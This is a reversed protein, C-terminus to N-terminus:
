TLFFEHEAVSVSHQTHDIPHNKLASVMKPKVLQNFKQIDEQSVPKIALKAFTESNIIPITGLFVLFRADNEPLSLFKPLLNALFYQFDLSMLHIISHTFGIRPGSFDAKSFFINMFLAVESLSNTPDLPLPGKYKVYEIPSVRFNHGWEWFLMTPNVDKGLMVIPWCRIAFKLRSMDAGFTFVKKVLFKWGDKWLKPVRVIISALILATGRWLVKDKKLPRVLSYLKQLREESHLLTVLLFSVAELMGNTVTKRRIHQKLVEIVQDFFVAGIGPDKDLRIFRVMTFPITLDSQGTYFGFLQSVAAFDTESVMSFIVSWEKLLTELLESHFLKCTSVSYGTRTLFTVAGEAGYKAVIQCILDTCFLVTFFHFGERMYKNNRDYIASLSSLVSFPTNEPGKNLLEKVIKTLYHVSEAPSAGALDTLNIMVKDYSPIERPFRKFLSLLIKEPSRIPNEMQRNFDQMVYYGHPTLSEIFHAFVSSFIITKDDM